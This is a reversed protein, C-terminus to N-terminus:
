SGPSQGAPDKKGPILPKLRASSDVQLLRHLQRSGLSGGTSPPVEAGVKWEQRGGDWHDDTAPGTKEVCVQLSSPIAALSATLSSFAGSSLSRPIESSYSSFSSPLPPPLSSSLSLFLPLHLLPLRFCAPATLSFAPLPAWLFPPPLLRPWDRSHTRFHVSCAPFLVAPRVWFARNPHRSLLDTFSCFQPLLELSSYIM